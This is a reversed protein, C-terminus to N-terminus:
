GSPHGAQPRTQMELPRAECRILRRSMAGAECVKQTASEERSGRGQPRRLAGDRGGAPRAPRRIPRPELLIAGARRVRHCRSSAVVSTASSLESATQLRVWGSQPLVTEDPRPTSVSNEVPKSPGPADDVSSPPPSRNRERHPTDLYM